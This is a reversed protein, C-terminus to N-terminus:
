LLSQLLQEVAQSDVASFIKFRNARLECFIDLFTPRHDPDGDWCHSILRTTFPEITDPIEARAGDRVKNFLKFHSRGCDQLPKKGTVIEYFLIGFSFVDVKNAYHKGNFLEPAMYLPTGVDLTMTINVDEERSLGFDAIIPCHSIPDLLINTPKLDRHIIGGCHVLYMGVVIGVIIMTKSTFSLCPHNEPSTLVTELSDPGIYPMAIRMVKSKGPLDCDLLPLICPHRFKMLSRVERLIRESLIGDSLDGDKLTSSKVAILENTLQNRYRHVKGQVGQGILDVKRYRAVL